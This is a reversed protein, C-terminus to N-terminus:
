HYDIIEVDTPKDTWIFCVRWQQNIRISHQGLRDGSLKELKNGPPSGLDILEVASDLMQLKREAQAQFSRFQKPSEGEYLAKTHKCKFNNIMSYIIYRM